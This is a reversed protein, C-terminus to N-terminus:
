WFFIGLVNGLIFELIFLIFLIGVAHFIYLSNPGRIDNKTYKNVVDPFLLSFMVILYLIGLFITIVKPFVPIIHLFLFVFLTNQATLWILCWNGENLTLIIQQIQSQMINVNSYSIVDLKNLDDTINFMVHVEIYNGQINEEFYIGEIENYNNSIFNGNLDLLCGNVYDNYTLVTSEDNILLFTRNM